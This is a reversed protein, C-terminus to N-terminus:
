KRGDRMPALSGDMLRPTGKGYVFYMLTDPHEKDIPNVTEEIEKQVAPDKPDKGEDIAKQFAFARARGVEGLWEYDPDAVLSNEFSPRLGKDRMKKKRKMTETFSIETAKKIDVHLNELAELIEEKSTDPAGSVKAIVHINRALSKSTRIAQRRLKRPGWNVTRSWYMEETKDKLQCWRKVAKDLRRGDSFDGRDVKGQLIFKSPEFGPSTLYEDVLEKGHLSIYKLSPYGMGPKSYVTKWKGSRKHHLVREHQQGSNAKGEAIYMEFVYAMFNEPDKDKPLRQAILKFDSIFDSTRFDTPGPTLNVKKFAPRTAYRQFVIDIYTKILRLVVYETQNRCYDYDDDNHTYLPPDYEDFMPNLM